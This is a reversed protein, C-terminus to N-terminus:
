HLKELFICFCKINRLVFVEITRKDFDAVEEAKPEKTKKQSKKSKRKKSPKENDVNKGIRESEDANPRAKRTKAKAKSEDWERAESVSEDSESEDGRLEKKTKRSKITTLATESDSMKLLQLRPPWLRWFFATCGQRAARLSLEMCMLM